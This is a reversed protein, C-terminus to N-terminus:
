GDLVEDQTWPVSLGLTAVARSWRKDLTGDVTMGGSEVLCGGPAVAPDPRFTTAEDAFSERLASELLGFDAPHLRVVVARADSAMMGLAERIVPELARTDAQLERRVVQRALACSLDLVGQALAQEAAEWRAEFAQACLALREATAHAQREFFDDMQQKVAVAAQASGQAHGLERGAARAQELALLQAATDAEAAAGRQGQLSAGSVAGFEWTAVADIEESPVFRSHFVARSM